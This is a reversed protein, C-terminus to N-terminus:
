PKSRGASGPETLTGTVGADAAEATVSKGHRRPVLVPSIVVVDRIKDGVRTTLLGGVEIADTRSGLELYLEVDRLDAGIWRANINSLQYLVYPEVTKVLGKKDLSFAVLTWTRVSADDTRAIAILEDRADVRLPAAFVLNPV